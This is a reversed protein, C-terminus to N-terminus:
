EAPADGGRASATVQAARNSAMRRLEVVVGLVDHWFKSGFGLSIGTIASGMLAQVAGAPSALAAHRVWHSGDWRTWGLTSWPSDPSALMAFLDAKMAIALAVGVWISSATILRERSRNENDQWEAHRRLKVM